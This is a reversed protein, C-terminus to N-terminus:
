WLFWHLTNFASIFYTKIDDTSLFRNKWNMRMGKARIASFLNPEPQCSTLFPSVFCTPPLLLLLHMIMKFDIFCFPEQPLPYKFLYATGYDIPICGGLFNFWLIVFCSPLVNQMFILRLWVAAVLRWLSPQCLNTSFCKTQPRACIFTTWRRKILLLIIKIATPSLMVMIMVPLSCIVIKWTKM